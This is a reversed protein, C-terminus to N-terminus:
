VTSEMRPSTAPVPSPKPITRAMARGLRVSEAIGRDEPYYYCTDAIQLGEIPTQVPPIRAAFGPECVPQGHRLRGVRTALIDSAKLDPNLRLLCGFGEALLQEDPWHFKENTTPMYYPIYVVSNSIEKRLNTLEVVGPITLDPISINVWFHKTVPRKLKFIVCIVGINQIARYRQKWDEPLDPIMDAVYPTPTTSVVYDAPFHESTTEAGTVRKGQTTVFQVPSGLHIRGGQKKISETLANVLTQSGGDIYGLEEQM